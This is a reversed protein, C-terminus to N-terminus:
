YKACNTGNGSTATITLMIFFVHLCAHIEETRLTKDQISTDASIMLWCGCTCVSVCLM